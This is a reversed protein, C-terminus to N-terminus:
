VPPKGSDPLPKVVIVSAKTKAATGLCRAQKKHTCLSPSRGRLVFPDAMMNSLLGETRRPM